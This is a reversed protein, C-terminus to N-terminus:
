CVLVLTLTVARSDSFTFSTFSGDWDVLSEWILGGSLSCAIFYNGQNAESDERYFERGQSGNPSVGLGKLNSAVLNSIEIHRLKGKLM